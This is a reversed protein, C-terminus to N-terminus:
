GIFMEASVDLFRVVTKGSHGHIAIVDELSDYFAISRNRTTWMLAVRGDSFRVGEAVIGTGSIGTVDVLRNLVFRRM